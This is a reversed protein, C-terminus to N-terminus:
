KSEGHISIIAKALEMFDEEGLALRYKGYEGWHVHFCEANEIRLGHPKSDDKYLFATENYDTGSKEGGEFLSFKEHPQGGSWARQGDPFIVANRHEDETCVFAEINEYGLQLHALTRKFGDLRQYRGYGDEAVLIPRIKSGSKLVSKIYEIGELHEETTKGDNQVNVIFSGDPQLIHFKDDYINDLKKLPIFIRKM